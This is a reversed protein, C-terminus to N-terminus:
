RFDELNLTRPPRVNCGVQQLYSHLRFVSLETHQFYNAAAVGDIGPRNLALEFDSEKGAGGCIVLPIDILSSVMDVLSLDIGQKLGDRSISNLFIEGVGLDQIEKLYDSLANNIKERGHDVYVTYEGNDESVDVSAIVCQSGFEKVMDEVLKQNKFLLKNVIVKDAGCSLRDQADKLTRIGGGCALPMFAVKASDRLVSLFDNAVVRNTDTRTKIWDSNNSIDLFIVEDAGWESLRQITSYPNGLNKFERFGLSQVVYGERFLVVPIVRQKKM